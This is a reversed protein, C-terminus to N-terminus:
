AMARFKFLFVLVLLLTSVTVRHSEGLAFGELWNNLSRESAKSMDSAFDRQVLSELDTASWLYCAAENAWWMSKNEIDFVWIPSDLLEFAELHDNSYLRRRSKSLGSDPKETDDVSTSASKTAGNAQTASENSSQTESSSGMSLVVGDIYTTTTLV